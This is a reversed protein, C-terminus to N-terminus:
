LEDGVIPQEVAITPKSTEKQARNALIANTSVSDLETARDDRNGHKIRDEIASELDPLGYGQALAFDQCFGAVEKYDTVTLVKWIFSNDFSFYAHIMRNRMGRIEDWHIDRYLFCTDISIKSLEEVMRSVYLYVTCVASLKDLDLDDERAKFDSEQLNYVRIFTLAKILNEYAQRVRLLDNKQASM